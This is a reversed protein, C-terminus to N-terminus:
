RSIAEQEAMASTAKTRKARTPMARIKVPQKNIVLDM